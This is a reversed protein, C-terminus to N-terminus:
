IQRRRVSTIKRGRRKSKFYHWIIETVFCVVALLYGLLLLYFATLLHRVGFVIYEGVSTPSNFTTQVKAKELGRKKIYMLIGGEVIHSIVDNICELFPSRKTVAITFDIARIFGDELECLLPRNNEDGWLEKGQHIGLHLDNLATSINHYLAAWIFCTSEDAIEVADKIIASDLTNSTDPFLRKYRPTLGFKMESNLMQEVTKIPEM